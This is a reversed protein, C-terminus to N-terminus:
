LFTQILLDLLFFKAINVSFHFFYRSFDYKQFIFIMFIFIDWSLKENPFKLEVFVVFDIKKGCCHLSFLETWSIKFL